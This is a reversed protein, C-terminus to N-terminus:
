LVRNLARTKNKCHKMSIFYVSFFLCTQGVITQVTDLIVKSSYTMNHQNCQLKRAADSGLFTTKKELQHTVTVSIFSIMELISELIKGFLKGIQYNIVKVFYYKLLINRSSLSSKACERAVSSKFLKILVSLDCLTLHSQTTDAVLSLFFATLWLGTIFCSLLTVTYASARHQGRAITSHRAAASRWKEDSAPDM